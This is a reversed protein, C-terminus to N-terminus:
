LKSEDDVNSRLHKTRSIYIKLTEFACLNKDKEYAKVKIFQVNFKPRCQKVNGALWMCIFDKGIIIAKLILLHLTQVRAAQTLALLMVLKLTLDKLSLSHLPCMSRLKELVPQVDWTEIYRPKAPRMNFVGKLLRVVLPHDGARRGDVVIGLSSLAARATNICEYGVGRYFTESLFNIVQEVTPTFPDVEWRSCFQTWRKFHPRYQKGTGPKWSAM